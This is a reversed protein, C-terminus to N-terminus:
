HTERPERPWYSSKLGFDAKIRQWLARWEDKLVTRGLLVKKWGPEALYQMVGYIDGIFWEGKEWWYFGHGYHPGGGHTVRYDTTEDPQVIALVGDGPAMEPDGEYTSQGAYYIRYM